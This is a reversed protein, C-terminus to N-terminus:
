TEKRHWRWVPPKVTQDLLYAGTVRMGDRALLQLTGDPASWVNENTTPCRQGDHPGGVFEPYYPQERPSM